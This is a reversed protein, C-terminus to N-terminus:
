GGTLSSASTASLIAIPQNNFQSGTGCRFFPNTTTGLQKVPTHDTVVNFADTPHVRLAIDADTCQAVHTVCQDQGDMLGTINLGGADVIHGNNDVRALLKAGTCSAAALAGSRLTLVLPAVAAAGRVWRRRGIDLESISTTDAIMASKDVPSQQTSETAEGIADMTNM